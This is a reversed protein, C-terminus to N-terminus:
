LTDSIFCICIYYNLVVDWFVSVVEVKKPGEGLAACVVRLGALGVLTPVAWDSALAVRCVWVWACALALPGLFPPTDLGIM